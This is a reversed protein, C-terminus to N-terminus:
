GNVVFLYLYYSSIHSLICFMFSAFYDLQRSVSYNSFKRHCKVINNIGGNSFYPISSTDITCEGQTQIGGHKNIIACQYDQSYQM